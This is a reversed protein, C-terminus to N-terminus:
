QMRSQRWADINTCHTFWRIIGRPIGLSDFYHFIEHLPPFPPNGDVTILGYVCTNFDHRKMVGTEGIITRGDQAVAPGFAGSVYQMLVEPTGSLTFAIYQNDIKYEIRSPTTPVSTQVSSATPVSTQVNTAGMFAGNLANEADQKLTPITNGTATNMQEILGQFNRNQAVDVQIRWWTNTQDFFYMMVNQNLYPKPNASLVFAHVQALVSPLQPNM